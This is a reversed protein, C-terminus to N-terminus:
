IANNASLVKERKKGPMRKAIKRVGSMVLAMSIAISQVVYFYTMAVDMTLFGAGTKLNFLIAFVVGGLGLSCMGFFYESVIEPDAFKMKNIRNAFYVIGSIVVISITFIEMTEGNEIKNHILWARYLFVILVGVAGIHLLLESLNVLNMDRPRSEEIKAQYWQNNKPHKMPMLAEEKAFLSTIDSIRFRNTIIYLVVPAVICILLVHLNNQIIDRFVPLTMYAGALIITLFISILGYLLKKQSKSDFRTSIFNHMNQKHDVTIIDLAGESLPIILLVYFLYNTIIDLLKLILGGPIYSKLDLFILLSVGAILIIRRKNRNSQAKIVAKELFEVAVNILSCIGLISIILGAFIANLVNDTYLSILAYIFIWYIFVFLAFNFNDTGRIASVLTELSEEEFKLGM